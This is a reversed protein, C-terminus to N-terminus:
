EDDINTWDDMANGVGYDQNAGNDLAQTTENGLSAQIAYWLDPDSQYEAPIASQQQQNKNVEVHIFPRTRKGGNRPPTSMSDFM